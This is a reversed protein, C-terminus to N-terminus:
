SKEQSSVKSKRRSQTKKSKPSQAMSRPSPSPYVMRKLIKIHKKLCAEYIAAPFHQQLTAIDKGANDRATAAYSPAAEVFIEWAM